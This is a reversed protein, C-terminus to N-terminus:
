ETNETIIKYFQRLPVPKHSEFLPFRKCFYINDTDQKYDARRNPYIRETLLLFRRVRERFIREFVQGHLRFSRVHLVIELGGASVQQHYEVGVM